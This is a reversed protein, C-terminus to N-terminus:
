LEIEGGTNDRGGLKSYRIKLSRYKCCFCIIFINLLGLIIVAAILLSKYVPNEVM